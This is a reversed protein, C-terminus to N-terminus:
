IPEYCSRSPDRCSRGGVLDDDPGFGKLTKFCWYATSDDDEPTAGAPEDTYVYMGKSRLHACPSASPEIVPLDDPETNAM